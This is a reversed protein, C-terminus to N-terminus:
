TDLKASPWPCDYRVTDAQIAQTGWILAHTTWYPLSEENAYTDGPLSPTKRGMYTTFLDYHQRDKWEPSRLKPELTQPDITALDLHKLVVFIFSTAPREDRVVLPTWTDRNVRRAWRIRTEEPGKWDSSQIEVLDMKGVERGMDTEFFADKDPTATVNSSRLVEQTLEWLGPQEALHTAAHSHEVDVSVIANNATTEIYERTEPM